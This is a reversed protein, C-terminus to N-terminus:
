SVPRSRHEPEGEEQHGPPKTTPEEWDLTVGIPLDDTNTVLAPDVDGGCEPCRPETLGTLDYGCRRCCGAAARRARRAPGRFFRWVPWAMLLLVVIWTKVVLSRELGLMNRPQAAALLPSAVSVTPFAVMEQELAVGVVSLRQPPGGQGAPIDATFYRIALEGPLVEVGLHWDPRMGTEAQAKRLQDMKEQITGANLANLLEAVKERRSKAVVGAHESSLNWDSPFRVHSGVWLASTAISLLTLTLVTGRHLIRAARGKNPPPSRLEAWILRPPAGTRRWFARTLAVILIALLIFLLPVDARYVDAEVGPTDLGFTKIEVRGWRSTYLMNRWTGIERDLLTAAAPSVSADGLVVILRVGGGAGAAQIWTTGTLHVDMAAPRFYSGILLCVLVGWAMWVRKRM